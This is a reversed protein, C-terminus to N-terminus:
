RQSSHGHSSRASQAALMGLKLMDLDLQACMRRSENVSSVDRLHHHLNLFNGLTMIGTRKCSKSGIWTKSDGPFCRLWVFVTNATVGKGLQLAKEWVFSLLLLCQRGAFLTEWRVNGASITNQCTTWM